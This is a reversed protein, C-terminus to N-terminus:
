RLRCATVPTSSAVSLQWPRSASDARIQITASGRVPASAASQYVDAYRRALITTASGHVAVRLDGSTVTFHGAPVCSVPPPAAASVRKITVEGAGLLLQDAALRAQEPAAALQAPTDAPTGSAGAAAFYEGAHVVVFPFGPLERIVFDSPVLGRAAALAGLSARTMQGWTRLYFAADRFTGINSACVALVGLGVVVRGAMPVWVDHALEVVLLVILLVGVYLYRSAWAQNGGLWARTIATLGWFSGLMVLLAAARPPMARTRVLWVILLVVGVAAAPRGLTLLMGTGTASWAPAPHAGILAGFTASGENVIFRPIKGFPSPAAPQQYSIWWLGYLVGPAALVWLARWRRRSLLDVGVGIAMVIGVGSSALAVAVLVCAVVDGRRDGRDLAMLAGLGAGVSILWAIQFPWLINQWGPGNFLVLVAACLALEPAVRRRAYLFVIAACGLHAAIVLLRYPRYDGIGVTAFLVKYITVPILSLHDNHPVLFVAPTWSRRHIAWSWDDFWLTTGRTLYYFFAGCGALLAVLVIM